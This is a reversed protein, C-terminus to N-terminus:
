HSAFSDRRRQIMYLFFPGGLFSLLIGVPLEIPDFASRAVTDALVVLLGGGLASAPLLYRYDGGIMIRLIHPVVLGVFGILGSVSVAIGALLTSLVILFFRSKEVNHGLLKAVEDGLRLIRIHRIALLALVLAAIAYYIIMEFQVWGVGAIGGALWPLVSQVRDSYLLMLASMFAGIVANIAVGVLIIRVPSTGGKWSLAYIILATVLAGIFAALPLFMIYAPFIIMITTAALGAGSSVGIIGPDALPNKMVGQLIAGSSALCMGVIMGILVRPFRLEWVIRRALSEDPTFLGSWIESLSFSVPGIMLSATVALVLMISFATVVITRKKALPHAHKSVPAEVAEM